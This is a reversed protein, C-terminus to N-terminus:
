GQEKMSALARLSAAAIALPWTAAFSQVCLDGSIGKLSRTAPKLCDAIDDDDPYLECCARDTPYDGVLKHWGEPVLQMAIDLSALPNHRNFDEEDFSRRPDYPGPPSWRIIPGLFFGATSTRWGFARLVEEGLERDPGTAEEVRSALEILPHTM